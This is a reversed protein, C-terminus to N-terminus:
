WRARQVWDVWRAQHFARLVPRPSGGFGRKFGDVGDSGGSAGFVMRRYGERAANEIVTHLLLHRAFVDRSEPVAGCLWTHATTGRDYLMLETTVVRGEVSGVWIRAGDGLGATLAELTERDHRWSLDWAHSLREYPPYFRALAQASAPMSEVRVGLERARRIRTRMTGAYGDWIARPGETLELVRVRDERVRTSFVDRFARAVTEGPQPIVMEYRAVRLGGVRDRFARFLQTAAEPDPTERFVPGGDTGFPLSVWEHLGSPRARAVPLVATVVGDREVRFAGLRFRPYAGALAHLWRPTQFLSPARELLPEAQALGWGFRVTM